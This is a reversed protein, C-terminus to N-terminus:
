DHIMLDDPDGYFKIWSDVKDDKWFFVGNKTEAITLKENVIDFRSVECTGCEDPVLTYFYKKDGSLIISNGPLSFWTGDEKILYFDGTFERQDSFVFYKEIPQNEAFNFSNEGENYRFYKSKIIKSNIKQEVWRECIGWDHDPYEHQILFITIESKGLRFHKEALTFSDKPYLSADFLDSISKIIPQANVFNSWFLITLLFLLKM